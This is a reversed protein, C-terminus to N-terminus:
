NGEPNALIFEVDFNGSAGCNIVVAQIKGVPQKEFTVNGKLPIGNILNSSVSTSNEQNGLSGDLGAIENGAADIVRSHYGFLTFQRTGEQVNTVKFDCRLPTDANLRADCGLLELNFGQEEKINPNPQALVSLTNLNLLFGLFGTLGLIKLM